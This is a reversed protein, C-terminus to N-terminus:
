QPNFRTSMKLKWLIIDYDKKMEIKARIKRAAFNSTRRLIKGSDTTSVVPFAAPAPPTSTLSM